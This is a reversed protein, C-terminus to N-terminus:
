PSTIFWSGPLPFWAPGVRQVTLVVTGYVGPYKRPEGERVKREWGTALSM